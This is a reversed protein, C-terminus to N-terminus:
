GKSGVVAGGGMVNGNRDIIRGKADVHGGVPVQWGGERDFTNGDKDVINGNEDIRSEVASKTEQEIGGAERDGCGTLSVLCIIVCMSRLKKRNM